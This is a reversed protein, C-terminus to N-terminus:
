TFLIGSQSGGVGLLQGSIAGPIALLSPLYLTWNTGNVSQYTLPFYTGTAVYGGVASCVNNICSISILQSDASSPLGTTPPFSVTSWTAGRNTSTYYVAHQANSAERYYGVATCQNDVCSVGNMYSGKNGAPLGALSFLHVSSWSLGGDTSVYSFPITRSPQIPDEVVGVATCNTGACSLGVIKAGGVYGTPMGTKPPFIPASWSVGNNTSRYFLPQRDGLADDYFGGAVCITGTCSVTGLFRSHNAPFGVTSPFYPKSWTVGSDSSSYTLPQHLQANDQYSGVTSCNSGSCSIAVTQIETNPVLPIGQLSFKYPESWTVGGDASSYAIPLENGMNDGYSGVTSCLKGNCGVGFLVAGGDLGTNPPVSASWTAGDNSSIYALPATIIGIQYLGVATSLSTAAASGSIVNLSHAPTPGACTKGGPFCVFLHHQPNADNRNVAGSIKLKLTCSQNIAGHPGLNFIRKCVTADTPEIVQTVHPPLWKVFNGKRVSLTNNTVTYSAYVSAGPSVATPLTGQPLLIFPTAYSSIAAFFGLFGISYYYKM